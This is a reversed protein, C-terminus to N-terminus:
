PAIGEVIADGPLTLDPLTDVEEIVSEASLALEFLSEMTMVCNTTGGELGGAAEVLYFLGMDEKADLGADITYSGDEGMSFTMYFSDLIALDEETMPIGMAEMMLVLDTTWTYVGDEVVAIKDGFMAEMMTVTMNVTDMLHFSNEDILLPPVLAQGLTITQGTTQSLDIGMAGLDNLELWVKEPESAGLVLSNVLPMHFYIEGEETLLLSATINSLDIEGSLGLADKLSVDMDSFLDPYTEVVAMLTDQIDLTMDIRSAMAEADAYADATLEFTSEVPEGQANYLTLTGTMSDQEHYKLGTQQQIQQALLDNMCTFRSDVQAILAEDDVVVATLYDSDWLVVYGFAESLFRLPVMTRGDEPVIYAACDMDKTVAEAGDTIVSYSASGIVFSVTINDKSILVVQGAKDFDVQADLAEMVARVPIMTRCDDSLVPRADPFAMLQGDIMVNVQGVAGGMDAVEKDARPDRGCADFYTNYYANSYGDAKGHAFGEEYTGEGTYSYSDVYNPTGAKVDAVAAAAGDGEAAYYGDDYGRDYDSQVAEEEPMPEPTLLDDEAALAPVGFGMLMSLTLITTLLKKM